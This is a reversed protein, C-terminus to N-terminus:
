NLSLSIFFVGLKNPIDMDWIIFQVIMSLSVLGM